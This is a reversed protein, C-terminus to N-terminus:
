TDNGKKPDAAAEVETPIKVTAYSNDILYAVRKLRLRQKVENEWTRYDFSSDYGSFVKWTILDKSDINISM